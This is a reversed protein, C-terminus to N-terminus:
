PRTAREGDPFDPKTDRLIEVIARRDDTSVRPGSLVDLMAAYVGQRVEDPLRDFAESYVLPSCRYRFLRKVLDLEAFSRGRRDPPTQRALYAAFAPRADLAVSLPAEGVFLLYEALETELSRVAPEAPSAAVRAEWNLRTLLNVGHTQHDFVLLAAIDSAGSLYGRAVPDSGMWEVFVQNSTFGGPSFTINGGHARQNYPPAGGGFTVYWGGWRDPHPTRHDVDSAATQPMVNGDDAVANSRAILGPVYLTTASVHCSLCSTQRTLAPSAASQNLTYFVVGQQPDHAAIEILPAGAIYGVVISRDFYLARPNHPSTFARQVGTKSFVLLQSEVSLGLADLLPRLYGTRPDRTLTRTGAALAAGLAGVRDTTPGTAYRIRPHEDLVGDRLAQAHGPTWANAVIALGLAAASAVFWARGQLQM